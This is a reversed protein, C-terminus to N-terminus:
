EVRQPTPTDQLDALLKKAGTLDPRLRLCVRTEQIAEDTQGAAALARALGLHWNANSYEGYVARRYYEAAGRPNNEKELLDAMAVFVHPTATPKGVEENLVTRFRELAEARVGAVAADSGLLDAVRRLM